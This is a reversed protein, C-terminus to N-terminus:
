SPGSSVGCIAGTCPRRRAASLAVVGTGVVSAAAAAVLEPLKQMATGLARYMVYAVWAGCMPVTTPPVADGPPRVVEADSETGSDTDPVDSADSM